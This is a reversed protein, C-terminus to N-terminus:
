QQSRVVGVALGPIGLIWLAVKAISYLHVFYAGPFWCAVQQYYPSYGCPEGDFFFILWFVVWVASGGLVIRFRREKTM